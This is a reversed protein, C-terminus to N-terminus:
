APANAPIALLKVAIGGAPHDLSAIVDPNSCPLLRRQVYHGDFDARRSQALFDANELISTRNPKHRIM